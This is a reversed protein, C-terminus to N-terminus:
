AIYTATMHRVIGQLDTLLMGVNQVKSLVEPRHGGFALRLFKIHSADYAGRGPATHFGMQGLDFGYKQNAQLKAGHEDTYLNPTHGGVRLLQASLWFRILDLPVTPDNLAQFSQQLIEFYEPEPEDETAKHVIKILEYGTMTRDLNAVIQDYHKILRASVLTGVAGRGKIFTIESVSFLEIGGALKSKVRRVGKALLTLKGYDPTLLTLIRDAEGYDTRSLIIASTVQHKM